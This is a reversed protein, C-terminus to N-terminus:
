YVQAAAQQMICCTCLQWAYLLKIPHQRMARRVLAALAFSSIGPMCAWLQADAAAATLIVHVSM